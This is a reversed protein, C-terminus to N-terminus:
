PMGLIMKSVERGSGKMDEAKRKSPRLHVELGAAHGIRVHSPAAPKPAVTFRMKAV